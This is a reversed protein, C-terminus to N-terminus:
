EQRVVKTENRGHGEEPGEPEPFHPRTALGAPAPPPPASQFYSIPTVPLHPDM